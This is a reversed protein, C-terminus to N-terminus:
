IKSKLKLIPRILPYFQYGLKYKIQKLIGANSVDLVYNIIEKKKFLFGLRLFYKQLRTDFNQSRKLNEIVLKTARIKSDMRVSDSSWFEGTNSNPHKRGFYLVKEVSIGVAGSVLIRSYCEWEEAYMLTEDFKFNNFCKKKWLLQCSNFPIEGTIMQEFTNEDLIETEFKPNEDFSFNFDGTFTSRLYRCYDLKSEELNEVAIKLVDPHAIDDDDFFVLYEGRALDIGMNRCGPLGKLYKEKRKFFKFREDKALLPQIKQYTDDTSGDDIILCEWDIYSQNVISLLSEMIFRERNYTAMVISVM